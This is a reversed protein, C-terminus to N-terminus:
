GKPQIPVAPLGMKKTLDDLGCHCKQHYECRWSDHKLYDYLDFFDTDLMKIKVIDNLCDNCISIVLNRDPDNSSIEYITQDRKTCFNCSSCFLDNSQSLKIM